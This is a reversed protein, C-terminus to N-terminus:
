PCIFVMRVCECLVRWVYMYLVAYVIHVHARMYMCACVYVVYVCCVVVCCVVVCCVCLLCVVYVCYWVGGCVVYVYCVSGSRLVTKELVPAPSFQCM